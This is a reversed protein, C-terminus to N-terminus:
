RAKWDLGHFFSHTRLAAVGTQAAAGGSPRVKGPPTRGKVGGLRHAPDSCLLSGILQRASQPLPPSPM